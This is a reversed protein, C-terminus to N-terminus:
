NSYHPPSILLYGFSPRYHPRLPPPPRNARIFAGIVKLVEDHRKSYRRLEMAVQCNNLVHSLSQRAEQCLRCVDSNKKGWLHLNANTPLTNSSANIAFKMVEPPLSQVAKVWLQPSYEGWVRAMERQSSLQCLHLHNQDAEEEALLTKVAGSLARRTQARDIHLDDVFMAPKFKSRQKEREDAAKRVGPDGSMFLQVMRSAQQKKYM